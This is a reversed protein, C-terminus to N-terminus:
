VLTANKSFLTEMGIDQFVLISFEFYLNTSLIFYTLAWCITEFLELLLPFKKLFYCKFIVRFRVVWFSGHSINPSYEELCRGMYMYLCLVQFIFLLEEVFCGLILIEHNWIPRWLFLNYEHLKLNFSNFIIKLYSLFRLQFFSFLHKKM